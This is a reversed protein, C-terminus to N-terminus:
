LSRERTDTASVEAEYKEDDERVDNPAIEVGMGIGDETDAVVGDSIGVDAVIEANATDVEMHEERSDELSYSDRFRKRPLLLDAPTPAISRSVHT